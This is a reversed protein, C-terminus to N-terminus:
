QQVLQEVTIVLNYLCGSRNAFRVDYTLPVEPKLSITTAPLSSYSPQFGCPIVVYTQLFAGAIDIGTIDAIGEQNAGPTTGVGSFYLSLRYEGPETPTLLTTPPIAETQNFLVVHRVVMWQPEQGFALASCLMMVFWITVKRV